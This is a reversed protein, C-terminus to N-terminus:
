NTCNGKIENEIETFQSANLSPSAWYDDGFREDICRNESLDLFRLSLLNGFVEPEIREIENFSLVIKELKTTVYFIEGSLVKIQNSSLNLEELNVLNKLWNEDIRALKNVSLDLDKLSRLDDFTDGDIWEIQNDKLDLSELKFLSKFNLKSIKRVGCSTVWYKKLNPFKEFVNIPLFRFKPNERM